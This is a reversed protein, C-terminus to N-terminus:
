GEYTFFEIGCIRCYTLFEKFTAPYPMKYHKFFDPEIRKLVTFERDEPSIIFGISGLCFHYRSEEDVEVEISFSNKVAEISFALESCM